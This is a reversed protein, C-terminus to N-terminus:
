LANVLWTHSLVKYTMILAGKVITTSIVIGPSPHISSKAAEIPPDNVVYLARANQNCPFFNNQQLSPIPFSSLLGQTLSTNVSGRHAPVIQIVAGRCFPHPSVSLAVAAHSRHWHGSGPDPHCRQQPIKDQSGSRWM